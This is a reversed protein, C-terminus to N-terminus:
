LKFLIGLTAHGQSTDDSVVKFQGQIGISQTFNLSAGAGVYFKGWRGQPGAGSGWGEQRVSLIGSLLSATIIDFRSGMRIPTFSAGASVDFANFDSYGNESIIVDPRRSYEARIVGIDFGFLRSVDYGVSLGFGDWVAQADAVMAPGFGLSWKKRSESEVPRESATSSAHSTEISEGPPRTESPNGGQIVTQSGPSKQFYFNYVDDASATASVLILIFILKKM